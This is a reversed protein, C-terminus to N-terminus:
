AESNDSDASFARNDAGGAGGGATAGAIGALWDM